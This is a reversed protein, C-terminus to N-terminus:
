RQCHALFRAIGAALARAIRERFASSELLRADTANRMNGTEVFVKPVNSLNLGGLDSRVSLGTGGLYTAYPLGTGARYAARMQLAYCRSPKAIDDTLGRISPPYIVHFGRGTAPGGDAHISIAADARARNGIAARETICPGWGANSTRTLVVSAGAARLRRALRKAVDFTYAPEAYGDATATGTTDCAKWLTGANVLKNIEAPHAWDRGNHGPDVAITAGALPSRAAPASAAVLTSIALALLAIRAVGEPYSGTPKSRGHGAGTTMFSAERGSLERRLQEGLQEPAQGRRRGLHAETCPHALIRATDVDRAPGEDHGRIRDREGGLVGRTEGDEHVRVVDCDRAGPRAPEEGDDKQRRSRLFRDNPSQEVSESGSRRIDADREDASVRLHRRSHTLRDDHTLHEPDGLEPLDHRRLAESGAIRNDLGPGCRDLASRHDGTGRGLPEPIEVLHDHLVGAIREVPRPDREDLSGEGRDLESRLRQVIGRFSPQESPEELHGRGSLDTKPDIRIGHQPELGTDTDAALDAAVRPRSQGRAREESRERVVDGVSGHCRKPLAAVLGGDDTRGLLSRPDDVREAM